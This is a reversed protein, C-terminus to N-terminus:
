FLRSRCTSCGEGGRRGDVRRRVRHVRFLRGCGCGFRRGMRLAPVAVLERAQRLRRRRHHLLPNGRAQRDGHGCQRAREGARRPSCSSIVLVILVGLWSAKRGGGVSVNLGAACAFRRSRRFAVWGVAVTMSGVAYELILDWGIMWAFIEGLTAYAYTYASGSIPIMAAFEAYCLAAFACALGALVYSLM